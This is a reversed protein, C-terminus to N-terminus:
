LRIHELIENVRDKNSLSKVKFSTIKLDELVDDIYKDIEIQWSYTTSRFGDGVPKTLVPLKFIWDYTKSWSKVVNIIMDSLLKDKLRKEVWRFYAYNDIVTRDCVLIKYNQAELERTIQNLIIWAQAELSNRNESGSPLPCLRVSEEIMIANYGLERLRGILSHALSTKGTSHSGILGIKM